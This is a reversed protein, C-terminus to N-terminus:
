HRVAGNDPVSDPKQNIFTSVEPVTRIVAETGAVSNIGRAIIEAMTKTAGYKSYYLVLIKINEM